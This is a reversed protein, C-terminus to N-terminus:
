FNCKIFGVAFTRIHYTDLEAHLWRAWQVSKRTEFADYEWKIGTTEEVVPKERKLICFLITETLM